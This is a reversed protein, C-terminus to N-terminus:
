RTPTNPSPESEVRSLWEDLATRRVLRRSGLKIAPLPLCGKLRGRIALYVTGKSYRLEHAVEEVTLVENGM